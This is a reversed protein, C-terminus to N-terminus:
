KGVWTDYSGSQAKYKAIAIAMQVPDTENFLNNEELHRSFINDDHVSMYRNNKSNAMDRRM